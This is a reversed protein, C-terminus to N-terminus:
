IWVSTCFSIKLAVEEAETQERCHGSISHSNFAIIIRSGPVVRLEHAKNTKGRTGNEKEVSLKINPRWFTKKKKDWVYHHHLCPVTLAAQGSSGSHRNEQAQKKVIQIASTVYHGLCSIGKM